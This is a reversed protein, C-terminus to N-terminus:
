IPRKKNLKHNYITYAGFLLAVCLLIILHQDIAEEVLPPEPTCPVEVGDGDYCPDDAQINQVSGLLCIFLLVIKFLSNKTSIKM